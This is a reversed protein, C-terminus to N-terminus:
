LLDRDHGPQVAMAAAFMMGIMAVNVRDPLHPRYAEWRALATRRRREMAEFWAQSQTDAKIASYAPCTMRKLEEAEASAVRSRENAEWAEREAQRERRERSATQKERLKKSYRYTLPM